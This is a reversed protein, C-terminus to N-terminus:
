LGDAGDAFFDIHNEHRIHKAMTQRLVSFAHGIGAIDFLQATRTM